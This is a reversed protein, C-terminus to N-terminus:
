SSPFGARSEPAIRVEYHESRADYHSLLAHAKPHLVASEYNEGAFRRVADLSAFLTITVFEVEAKDDAKDARRLLYAGKSGEVQRISPFMEDRLLAEYSDAHEPKTWGHWLRAIM